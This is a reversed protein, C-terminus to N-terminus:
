STPGNKYRHRESPLDPLRPALVEHLKLGCGPVDCIKPEPGPLDIILDRLLGYAQFVHRRMGTTASYHAYFLKSQVDNPMDRDIGIFHTMFDAVIQLTVDESKQCRQDSKIEAGMRRAIKAISKDIWGEEDEHFLAKWTTVAVRQGDKIGYYTAHSRCYIKGKLNQWSSARKLTKQWLDAQKSFLTGWQEPKEPILDVTQFVVHRYYEAGTLWPM